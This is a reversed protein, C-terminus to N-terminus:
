NLGLSRIAAFNQDDSSWGIAQWWYPALHTGSGITVYYWNFRHQFFDTVNWDFYLYIENLINLQIYWMCLPVWKTWAEIHLLDVNTLTIALQRKLVLGNGSKTYVPDDPICEM